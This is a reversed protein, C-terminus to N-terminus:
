GLAPQNEKVSMEKFKFPTHQSILLLSHFYGRLTVYLYSPDQSLERSREGNSHGSSLSHPQKWPLQIPGSCRSWLPTRVDFAACAGVRTHVRSLRRWGCGEKELTEKEECTGAREQECQHGPSKRGRRFQCLSGNLLSMQPSRTTWPGTNFDVGLTCQKGVARIEFTM